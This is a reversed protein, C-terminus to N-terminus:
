SSAISHHLPHGGQPMQTGFQYSWALNETNLGIFDPVEQMPMDRPVRRGVAGIVGHKHVEAGKHVAAVNIVPNMDSQAGGSDGRLISEEPVLAWDRADKAVFRIHPARRLNAFPHVEQTEHALAHVTM